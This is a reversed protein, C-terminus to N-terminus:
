IQSVLTMFIFQIRIWLAHKKKIYKHKHKKSLDNFSQLLNGQTCRMLKELPEELFVQWLKLKTFYLSPDFNLNKWNLNGEWNSGEEWDLDQKGNLNTLVLTTKCKMCLTTKFQTKDYDVNGTITKDCKANHWLKLKTM